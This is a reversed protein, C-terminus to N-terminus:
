MVINKFYVYIINYKSCILYVIQKYQPHALYTLLTTFYIFSSYALLYSHLYTISNPLNNSLWTPFM